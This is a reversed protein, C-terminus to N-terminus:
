IGEKKRYLGFILDVVGLIIILVIWINIEKRLIAFIVALIILIAGTLASQKWQEM